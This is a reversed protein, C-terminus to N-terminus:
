MHYYGLIELSTLLVEVVSLTLSISTYELLLSSSIVMMFDAFVTIDLLLM